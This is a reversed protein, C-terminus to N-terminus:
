ALRLALAGDEQRRLSLGLSPGAKPSNNQAESPISFGNPLAGRLPQDM